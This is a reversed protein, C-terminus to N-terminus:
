TWRPYTSKLLYLYDQTCFERMGEKDLKALNEDKVFSNDKM